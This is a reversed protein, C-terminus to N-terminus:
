HCPHLPTKLDHSVQFLRQALLHTGEARQVLSYSFIRGSLCSICASIHKPYVLFTSLDYHCCQWSWAAGRPLLYPFRPHPSPSTSFFPM